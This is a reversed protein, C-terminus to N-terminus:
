SFVLKAIVVLLVVIILYRFRTQGGQHPIAEVVMAQVLMGQFPMAKLAM